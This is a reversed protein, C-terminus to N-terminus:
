QGYELELYMPLDTGYKEWLKPSRLRYGKGRSWPQDANPSLYLFWGYNKDPNWMEKICYETNYTSGHFVVIGEYNKPFKLGKRCSDIVSLIRGNDDIECVKANFYVTDSAWPDHNRISVDFVPQWKWIFDEYVLEWESKVGYINCNYIPYPKILPGYVFGIAEEEFDTAKSVIAYWNDKRYKIILKQGPWLVGVIKSEKSREARLNTKSHVYGPKWFSDTWHDNAFAIGSEILLISMTLAIM